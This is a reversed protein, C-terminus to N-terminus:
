SALEPWPLHSAPSAACVKYKRSVQLDRLFSGPEVEAEMAAEEAQQQHALVDHQNMWTASNSATGPSSANAGAAATTAAHSPPPPSVHCGILSDAWFTGFSHYTVNLGCICSEIGQLQIPVITGSWILM